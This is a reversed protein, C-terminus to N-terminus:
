VAAMSQFNGANEMALVSEIERLIEPHRRELDRYVKTNARVRVLYNCTVSLTLVETGYSKEGESLDRILNETEQEM